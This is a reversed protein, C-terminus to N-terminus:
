DGIVGEVVGLRRQGKKHKFFEIQRMRKLVKEYTGKEALVKSKDHSLLRFYYDDPSGKIKSKGPYDKWHAGKKKEKYQLVM